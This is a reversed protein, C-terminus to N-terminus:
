GHEETFLAVVRSPDPMAIVDGDYSFKNPADSSFRYKRAQELAAAVHKCVWNKGKPDKESPSSATGAPKGYLFGNTKAWHEPGQWQFFKCTCSVQVQAKELNKIKPTLEGKVRVTYTEGESGSCSFTWFGKDPDFRKVRLKVGKAKSIIDGSSHSLIETLTKAVLRRASANMYTQQNRLTEEKSNMPSQDPNGFDDEHVNVGLNGPLNTFNWADQFRYPDTGPQNIDSQFDQDRRLIVGEAIRAHERFLKGQSTQYGTVLDNKTIGLEQFLRKYMATAVGKRQFKSSVSVSLVAVERGERRWELYGIPFRHGPITASIYGQDGDESFSLTVPEDGRPEPPRDPDRRIIPM